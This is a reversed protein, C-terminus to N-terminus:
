IYQNEKYYDYAFQVIETSLDLYEAIEYLNYLGKQSAEKLDNISVLVTCKWKNARYEKQKITSISSHIDYFADYYYHGLEEALIEKEERSNDIESYNLGIYYRKDIQGIIAKNKMKFDIVSINERNAISYLRNLEM